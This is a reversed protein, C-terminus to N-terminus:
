IQSTSIHKTRMHNRLTQRTRPKANCEQCPFWITKFHIEAHTRVHSQSQGVLQCISCKRQGKDDKIVIEQLKADLEEISAFESSEFVIKTNSHKRKMVSKPVFVYYEASNSILVQNMVQTVLKDDEELTVASIEYNLLM